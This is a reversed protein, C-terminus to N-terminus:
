RRRTRKNKAPKRADLRAQSVADVNEEYCQRLMAKSPRGVFSSTPNLDGERRIIGLDVAICHGEQSHERADALTDCYHVSQQCAECHRVDSSNTPQLDAWTKACLFDFRPRWFVGASKGCGEIAPDSVVALWNTDLTAALEQLRAPIREHMQGSLDALQRELENMREQRERRVRNERPSAGAGLATKWDQMQEGNLRALEASLEEHRHRQEPTIVREQRVKVMLRLYEARPDDQEELWDAYILKTTDDDPRERIAALFGREENM